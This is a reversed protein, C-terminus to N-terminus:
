AGVAAQMASVSLQSGWTQQGRPADWKRRAAEAVRYVKSAKIIPEIQVADRTERALMLALCYLGWSFDGGWRMLCGQRYLEDFGVSWQYSPKLLAEVLEADERVPPSASGDGATSQQARAETKFVQAHWAILVDQRDYCFVPIQSLHRGTVTIDRKDSYVELRDKRRGGPPLTGRLWIHLGTGSPSVETYTDFSCVIEEAWPEIKGTTANRVHDLDIAVFGAQSTLVFGIGGVTNQVCTQFDSWTRPDTVSAFTGDPQCPVKALKGDLRRRLQWCIWQPCLRLSEPITTEEVSKM